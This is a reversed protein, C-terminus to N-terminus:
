VYKNTHRSNFLLINTKDINLFLKNINLWSYLKDIGHKIKNALNIIFTDNFMLTTDDAFLIPKFLLYIQYIM